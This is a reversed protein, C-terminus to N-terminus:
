VSVLQMNILGQRAPGNHWRVWRTFFKDVMGTLAPLCCLGVLLQFAVLWGVGSILTKCADEHVAARYYPYVHDASWLDVAIRLPVQTANVTRTLNQVAESSQCDPGVVELAASVEGLKIQAEWLGDLIPNSGSGRIYYESLTYFMAMDTQAPARLWSLANTDPDQCFAATALGVGFAAATAATVVLIAPVFLLPGLIRICCYGCSGISTGANRRTAWLVFLIATVCLLAFILPCSLGVIGWEAVTKMPQHIVDLRGPLDRIDDSYRDVIHRYCEVSAQLKVLLPCAPVTANLTDSLTNGLMRLAIGQLQATELDSAIHSVEQSVSKIGEVGFSSYAIMGAIACSFTLCAVFLLPKASPLSQPHRDPCCCSKILVAIATFGGVLVVSAVRGFVEVSFHMWVEVHAASDPQPFTPALLGLVKVWLSGEYSDVWSTSHLFSPFAQSADM